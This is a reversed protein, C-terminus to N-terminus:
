AAPKQNVMSLLRQLIISAAKKDLPKNENGCKPSYICSPCGEKCECNEILQLTKEWLPKIKSYLTESIGIGGEFGDYIFITPEGTDPHLPTSMGGIDWRDCMAFIPSMAIMAHEVAHIGGNFDLGSDEIEKKIAEPIIFWMGVTSFSLPPLNLPNREVVEDHSKTVYSHYFETTILEGLGVKISIQKEELTKKIAVDVTKLAETYYNVNEQTVKATLKNLDLEESIYTEGQHLLVAGAHAEEYAKNLTLTELISGKCTVTVTKDSISELTVVEVPRATGSYVYGRSTKRVLNQQELAQVSEQFLEPFYKRDAETLPLESAACMIHGLSIYRNHLDIIAQEHPRGFFDKPHKM